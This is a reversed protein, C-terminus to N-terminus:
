SSGGSQGERLGLSSMLQEFHGLTAQLANLRRREAAVRREPCGHPPGFQYVRRDRGREKIMEAEMLQTAVIELYILGDAKLLVSRRRIERRKNRSIRLCRNIGILM